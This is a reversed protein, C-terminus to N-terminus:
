DIEMSVDAPSLVNRRSASRARRASRLSPSVRV